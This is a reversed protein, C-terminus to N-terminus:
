RALNIKYRNALYLQDVPVPASASDDKPARLVLDLSGGVNQVHLITLADQTDVALLIAQAGAESSHFVGGEERAQVTTDVAETASKDDALPAPALIIAHIELNQLLAVSEAQTGGGEAGTAQMDVTALLDVHDGPRILHNSILKSQTPVVMVVKSRPVSLAVQQTVIDPMALQQVLIPANAFLDVTSMKGEVQDLSVAAGEPVADVPLDRIVLEAASISRRFPINVSAVVVPRTIVTPLTIASSAVPRLLSFTLLGALGASVFAGIWWLLGSVRM